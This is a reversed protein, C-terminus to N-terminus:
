PNNASAQAGTAAPPAPNLLVVVEVTLEWDSVVSEQTVPDHYAPDDPLGGPGAPAPQAPQLQPAPPAPPAPISGDPNIQVSVPTTLPALPPPNLRSQIAQRAAYAARLADLRPTDRQVQIASQITAKYIAYGKALETPNSASLLQLPALFKTNVFATSQANPTTCVIDVIFGRSGPGISGPAVVPPAAGQDSSNGPMGQMGPPGQMGPGGPYGGPNDPGGPQASTDTSGYAGLSLDPVYTAHISNITIQERQSRPQSAANSQPKPLCSYIDTLINPWLYRGDLLSHMNNISQLDPGGMHEIEAWDSDFHTAQGLDQAIGSRIPENQNYQLNELYWRGLAIGSGVLFLAAAAAFWKNKDRWMKERRIHMPLLSSTIAGQDLAQIALGYATVLSLINEAFLTAMKAEEPAGASFRDVREVDMQLNQQLYKQLGPLRFTGGLAIIRKLRSERHSSSYFGISRQVESVLEAFVPRMAQLIQRQYKSTSANRKLDEAKSFSMKFQKALAETLSNGGIPISRLWITEGEAIILDTNEAGLDMIMTAGKIRGDYAIANYVALPNMQVLQVNIEVGRYFQIQRDILDRRMAFIGVEVDPSDPKEFLQYSWEVDELPFPIQQIAEFRVIEPIKKKEVPPLKIFRAFSNQGGVAIGAVTSGLSHRQVFAALASQILAEKNDGADSLVTEHEILEFDDIRLGDGERVLKIAKLARNGVDIGWASSIAM